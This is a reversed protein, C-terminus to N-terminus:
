DEVWEFTKVYNDSNVDGNIKVTFIRYKKSSLEIGPIKNVNELISNDKSKSLDIGPIQNFIVNLSTSGIPGLINAANKALRGFVTMQAISTTLNYNGVIFLNLNKGISFIQINNCHGKDLEFSGSITKFEGTRLPTIFDVISNISLATIGSKVLNAANLLYELSGLKPMKGNAINFSGRGNVTKICQEYTTGKCSLALNGDVNGSIQNKLNIAAETFQNADIGKAKMNLNHLDNTLNYSYDGFIAGNSTDVKFNNLYLTNKDTVLLQGKLNHLLVNNLIISNATINSNKLIFPLSSINTSKATLKSETNLELKKLIDSITNFDVNEVKLDVNNIVYPVILRNQMNSKLKFESDFILGSMDVSIDKDFNMNMNDINIYYHPITINKINLKGAIKPANMSGNIKLDSNFIGQKIIPKKFVVNFIRPDTPKLTKVVFDDFLINNNAYEVGGSVYLDKVQYLKNYQNRYINSISFNKINLKNKKINADFNLEVPNDVSGLTAGLYYISGYQPIKISSQIQANSRSGNITTSTSIDGRFKLPYIESRNYVTDAFSQVPKANITLKYMPNSYINSVRGKILTPMNAIKGNVNNFTLVEDKLTFNGSVLEIPIRKPLYVIKIHNFNAFANARIKSYDIKDIRGNYTANFDAKNLTRSGNKNPQLRFFNGGFNEVLAELSLNESKVNINAISDHTKGKIVIKSNSFESILNINLDLNNFDITGSLHSVKSLLEKITVSADLLKISGNAFVNKGFQIDDASKVKGNLELAFDALGTASEITKVYEAIEELMPSTKLITILNNLPQKKTDVNFKFVGELTCTGNINIPQGNLTASKTKFITNKNDFKLNGNANHIVMNHVDNFSVTADRFNFEGTCSPDAKNGKVLLKINGIGKIDMIPVPGIEFGVSKHVPLLVYEATALDVNQTSRIDLEVAKDGYMKIPGKVTVYETKSAPVYVDLDIIDKVFNLIIAAKDAGHKLPTPTVYAETIKLAGNVDPEVADGKVELDMKVDGFFKARVLTEIDFDPNVSQYFKNCPPLLAVVGEARTDYLKVDLDLLPKKANIHKIAGNIDLNFKDGSVDLDAINIENKMASFDANVSLKNDYYYYQSFDKGNIGFKSAILNFTYNNKKKAVNSSHTEMNIIGKLDYYENNTFYAVYPSFMALNLDTASVTFIANSKSLNKQIPLKIDLDININSYNTGSMVKAYTSLDLKKNKIYKDIILFNGDIDIKSSLNKNGLEINYDAIDVTLNTIDINSSQNKDILYDGLYLNLDKSLSFNANLKSASFYTINCKNLIFKLISIEIKPDKIYLANTNDANIVKFEDARMWISPLLGMKLEPNKFDIVYGTQSKVINKITASNKDLNVVAPIGWFYLSYLMILSLLGILIKTTLRM